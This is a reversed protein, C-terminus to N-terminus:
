GGRHWFRRRATKRPRVERPQPPMESAGQLIATPVAETLWETWPAFGADAIEPAISPPRRDDDHADSAVNSVSGRELLDLAFRRPVDGFSGILAGATVSALVGQRLLTDLLRPDRHFAPCREPHALLVRYGQAHLSEVIGELGSAVQSFPPEALVWPGDGIRLQALEEAALEPIRTMAIEAGALIELDLGEAAIRENLLEVLEAIAAATNPYRSNVHPTALIRRTGGAAAARAMRLSEEITSPGDDIGPLIHCHLDIM